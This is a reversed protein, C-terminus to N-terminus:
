DSKKNIEHVLLWFGYITFGGWALFFLILFINLKTLAFLVYLMLIIISIFWYFSKKEKMKNM